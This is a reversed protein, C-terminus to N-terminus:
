ASNVDWLIAAAGLMRRGQGVLPFTIIDLKRRRGDMGTIWLTSRAPAGSRLTAVLPLEEPALPRGAEDTPQFVTSWEAMPMEGAQDFQVGLLAEAPENYYLLTGAPDVVFIPVSLYSALQRTLIIEIEKQTM